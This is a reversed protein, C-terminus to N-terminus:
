RPADRFLRRNSAVAHLMRTAPCALAQGHATVAEARAFLNAWAVWLPICGNLALRDAEMKVPEALVAQGDGIGFSTAIVHIHSPRPHREHSM